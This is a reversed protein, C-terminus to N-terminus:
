NKQISSAVSGTMLEGSQKIALNLAIINAASVSTDKLLQEKLAKANENIVSINETSLSQNFFNCLLINSAQKNNCNGFLGTRLTKYLRMSGEGNGTSHIWKKLITRDEIPLIRSISDPYHGPLVSIYFEPLDLGRKRAVREYSLRHELPGSSIHYGRDDLSIYDMVVDGPVQQSLWFAILSIIWLLLLTYM